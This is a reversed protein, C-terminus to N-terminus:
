RVLSELYNKLQKAVTPWATKVADHYWDWDPGSQYGSQIISLVTSRSEPTTLILLEMPGLIPRQPNFYAMQSIKLQCAPLYEAIIGTSVYGIGYQTIDWALSYLGGKKLEILSRDVSWWNKLHQPDTFANLVADPKAMIEITAGARRPVTTRPSITKM